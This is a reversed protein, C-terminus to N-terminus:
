FFQGARTRVIDSFRDLAAVDLGFKGLAAVVRAAHESMAQALARVRRRTYPAGVGVDGAFKEWTDPRFEDLTARKAIRMSFKASLEPYAATCLLDYLPTLNVAGQAYLLSFNKGHADANGLIANFIAADLLALVSPAPATCARRVLDFCDKFGPGGESVYKNEPPIGLAQCFDEQHLRRVSGEADSERDYREVLLFPRGAVSRPEVPAVNLGAAAALRMAFAENETTASFRAIPPKLIHTTPQGPLPLAIRGNVLVVPLKQQAGALSLRLGDRGALMPRKPLTDLIEALEDDTLPHTEALAPREPPNEGEPWLTLAGAVDGGLAELLRFDNRESIGLNKAVAERQADEPLLGAFFPRTERRNFAEARKPLSQSIPPRAPDDLWSPDYAFGLDGHQDIRLAGVLAGDWWVSLSRTM